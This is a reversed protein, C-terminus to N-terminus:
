ANGDRQDEDRSRWLTVEDLLRALELRIDFPVGKADARSAALLPFDESVDESVIYYEPLDRM